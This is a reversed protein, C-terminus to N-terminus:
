VAMEKSAGGSVPAKNTLWLLVITEFVLTFPIVSLNKFFLLITWESSTDVLIGKHRLTLYLCTEYALQDILLNMSWTIVAFLTFSLTLAAWRTKLKSWATKCYQRFAIRGRLIRVLQDFGKRVNAIGFVFLLMAVRSGEVIIEVVTHTTRSVEGFGGLQIVRGSGAVLGLSLLVIWHRKMFVLAATMPELNAQLAHSRKM